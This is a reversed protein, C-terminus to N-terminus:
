KLDKPSKNTIMTQFEQGSFMFVAAQFRCHGEQIFDGLKKLTLIKHRISSNTGCKTIVNSIVESCTACM